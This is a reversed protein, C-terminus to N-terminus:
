RVEASDIAAMARTAFLGVGGDGDDGATHALDARMHKLMMTVEGLNGGDHRWGRGSRICDSSDEQLGADQTLTFPRPDSKNSQM